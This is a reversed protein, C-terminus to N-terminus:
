STWGWWTWGTSSVRLALAGLVHDLQYGAGEPEPSILIMDNIDGARGETSVAADGEVVPGFARKVRILPLRRSRATM